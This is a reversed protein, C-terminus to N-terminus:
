PQGNSITTLGEKVIESLKLSHCHNRMVEILPTLIAEFYAFSVLVHCM